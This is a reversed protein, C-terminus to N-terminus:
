GVAGMKSMELKVLRNMEVAFEMPIEKMIDDMFGLVIMSSAEDESLGRSRLYTLEDTGIKGVTAEHSFEATPEYIEDFPYTYNKSDSNILLADCQVHSKARSAGENMRVLGRYATLGDDLSISKSVIRSTTDPALHIAKGGADKFTGKTALTIQLNSTSAGRGRLYSSPYIMTVKSGLEGTVWDMHAGEDVWARKVPLNYVSDSWNQVSTYKVNSNKRAYIEVIATHLSSTNYRPATCNHVAFGKVLYSNDAEVELNYVIDNYEEREINKIPVFFLNDRHTVSNSKKNESYEMIYQEKSNVTGAGIGDEPSKEIMISAFINNRALIEQMQFAMTKSAISARVMSSNGNKNYENGEGEIYYNILTKQKEKPLKMIKDSFKRKDPYKGANEECIKILKESHTSVTYYKGPAERINAQENMSKITSCLDHAVEKGSPGFSFAMENLNLKKNFSISGEAAYLGIIKLIGENFADDDETLVPAVYVIFDGSNLEDMRRYEPEAKMLKETSIERIGNRISSTAEEKKISLVPHESTARFANGPSLPTVRYMYGSYPHVYKKTIKRKNGTNSVVEDSSLLETIPVFNDGQSILEDDPLCGEIYHVSAGKDAVVITHEFQGSQEGNMRFYTQLPLDIHVNEPVYLFSGGSWVAGNLAAFKNDSPPIAKCYYERVLDPYKQVATDLDTFIVGKNEWEKRLSGYVGESDYQAVSGALYKQEMEPIGLKTFTDKIKPDVDDWSKAKNEGPKTYYTLNDFNIESLDPGWTPMPKSLFVDLAKLRSQRMWDPEKKIDSIEEVTKRNLGKGTSYIPQITDYFEFDSKKSNKLSETLREIEEDKDYDEM